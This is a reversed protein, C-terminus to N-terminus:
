AVKGIKQPTVCTTCLFKEKSFMEAVQQLGGIPEKCHCCIGGTNKDFEAETFEVGNRNNTIYHQGLIERFSVGEHRIPPQTSRKESTSVSLKEQPQKPVVSLVNRNTKQDTGFRRPDVCNIIKSSSAGCKQPTSQDSGNKSNTISKNATSGTPTKGDPGVLQLHEPLPDNLEMEKTLLFPNSVEGGKSSAGASSDSSTSKENGSNTSGGSKNENKKWDKWWNKGPTHKSTNSNSNNNTNVPIVKGKISKQASMTIVREDKSHNARPNVRFSWLTDEPLNIYKGRGDNNVGNWLDMKREVVALMWIESAWFLVRLDKSWTFWMPREKNRIFNLTKTNQDWWNCMWAGTIKPFTDEPGNQALHEYLVESDVKKYDYGDLDTYARLTGNHVGCIGEDEFDFPHASKIDIDGVTKHRTHGIYASALGTNITNEYSRSDFLYAPPGVRKVWSYDEGDPNIKIVGTSHRGRMQSVDLLDKLIDRHRTNLDGAIGVIGCM